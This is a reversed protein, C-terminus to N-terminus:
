QRYNSYDKQEAQIGTRFGIIFCEIIRRFFHFAADNRRSKIGFLRLADAAQQSLYACRVPDDTSFVCRQRDDFIRVELTRVTGSCAELEQIILLLVAFIDPKYEPVKRQAEM